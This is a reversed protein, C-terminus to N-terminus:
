AALYSDYFDIGKCGDEDETRRAFYENDQYICIMQTPYILVLFGSSYLLSYNADHPQVGEFVLCVTSSCVTQTTIDLEVIKLLNGQAAKLLMFITKHDKHVISLCKEHRSVLSTEM